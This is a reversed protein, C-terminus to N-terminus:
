TVAPPPCDHALQGSVELQMVEIDTIESGYSSGCKTCRLLTPILGVKGSPPPLHIGWLDIEPDVFAIGFCGERVQGVVRARAEKGGYSILLEQGPALPHPLEIAAGHRTVIATKADITFDTGSIDTGILQIPLQLSIRLSRRTADPAPAQSNM